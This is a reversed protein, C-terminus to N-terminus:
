NMDVRMVLLVADIVRRRGWLFSRPRSVPGIGVELRATFSTAGSFLSQFDLAKEAEVCRLSSGQWWVLGRM